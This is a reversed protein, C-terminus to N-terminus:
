FELDITSIASTVTITTDKEAEDNVTYLIKIPSGVPLRYSNQFSATEEDLREYTNSTNQYKGIPNNEEDLSIFQTTNYYQIRFEVSDTEPLRDISIDVDQIPNLKVLDLNVSEERDMFERPDVYSLSMFNPNHDGSSLPNFNVVIGRNYAVLSVFDVKGLAKSHSAGLVNNEEGVKTTVNVPLDQLAVNNSDLLTAFVAMRKDETVLVDDNQCASFSLLVVAIAAFYIKKM